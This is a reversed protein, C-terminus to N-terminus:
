IESEGYDQAQMGLRRRRSMDVEIYVEDNCSIAYADFVPREGTAGPQYPSVTWEGDTM